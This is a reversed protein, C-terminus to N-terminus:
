FKCYNRNEEITFFFPAVVSVSKFAIIGPDRERDDVCFLWLKKSVKFGLRRVDKFELGGM